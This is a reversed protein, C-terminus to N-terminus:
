RNPSIGEAVKLVLGGGYVRHVPDDIEGLVLGVTPQITEDDGTVDRTLDRAERLAGELHSRNLVPM